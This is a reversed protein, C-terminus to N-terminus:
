TTDSCMPGAMGWRTPLRGGPKDTQLGLRSSGNMCSTPMRRFSRAPITATLWMGMAAACALDVKLV